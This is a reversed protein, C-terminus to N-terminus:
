PRPDLRADLRQRAPHAVAREGVRAPALFPWHSTQTAEKSRHELRHTRHLRPRSVDDTSAAQTASRRCECTSTQEGLRGAGTMWPSPTLWVAAALALGGFFLLITRRRSSRALREEEASVSTADVPDLPTGVALRTPRGATALLASVVLWAAIGPGAIFQGDATPSRLAALVALVGLSAAMPWVTERRATDPDRLGLYVFAALCVLYGTWWAIEPPLM